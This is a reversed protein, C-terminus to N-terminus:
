RVDGENSQAGFATAKSDPIPPAMAAQILNAVAFREQYCDRANNHEIESATAAVSPSNPV